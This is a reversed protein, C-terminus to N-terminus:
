DERSEFSKDISWLSLLLNSETHDIWKCYISYLKSDVTGNLNLFDPFTHHPPARSDWQAVHWLPTVGLLVFSDRLHEQKKWIKITNLKSVLRDKENSTQCNEYM